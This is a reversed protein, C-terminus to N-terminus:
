TILQGGTLALIEATIYSSEQSAFFVYASALEAPQGARQTPTQKGFKEIKEEAMTSPILPTWIPGPAVCNVRIGKEILSQGLSKTLNVIAAKTMSYDLLGPSPKFAQVSATNVITSGPPMHPVAYKCLWFMAYLNTRMTRDFNETTIDMFNPINMQYAANNVLTTLGGLENVARDVLGKCYSEDRLDGLMVVCKRGADRVLQATTQADKEEEPLGSILIDAGERAYAIAVARGIGSDGGTIIAKRDKLRGYGRYTKEGHDPESPMDGTLGPWQIKTTDGSPGPHQHQPHQMTHQDRNESSM